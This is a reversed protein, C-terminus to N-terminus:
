RAGAELWRGLEDPHTAAYEAEEPHCMEWLWYIALARTRGRRDQHRLVEDLAAEVVDWTM